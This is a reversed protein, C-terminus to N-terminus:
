LPVWKPKWPSQLLSGLDKISELKPWRTLILEVTFANYANILFAMQQARGFAAFSSEGVASLSDLYAKLAARDAAMGAYRVQSAQGGRLPQVHKRLLATWAAHTHDFAQARAGPLLLAGTTALLLRRRQITPNM